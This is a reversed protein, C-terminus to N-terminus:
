FLNEIQGPLTPIQQQHLPFNIILKALLASFQAGVCIRTSSDQTFLYGKKKLLRIVKNAQIGLKAGQQCLKDYVEGGSLSGWDVSGEVEPTSLLTTEDNEVDTMPDQSLRSALPSKFSKPFRHFTRSKKPSLSFAEAAAAASNMRHWTM